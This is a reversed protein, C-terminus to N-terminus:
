EVAFLSSKFKSLSLVQLHVLIPVDFIISRRSRSLGNTNIAALPKRGPTHERAQLAQM